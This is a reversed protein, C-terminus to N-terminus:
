PQVAERCERTRRLLTPVTEGLTTRLLQEREDCKRRWAEDTRAGTLLLGQAHFYSRRRRRLSRETAKVCDGLAGRLMEVREAEAREAESLKGLVERVHEVRGSEMATDLTRRLPAEEPFVPTIEVELHRLATDAAGADRRSTELDAAPDSALQALSRSAAARELHSRAATALRTATALVEAVPPPALLSTLEEFQVRSCPVRSSWHLHRSAFLSDTRLERGCRLELYTEAPAPKVDHAFTVRARAPERRAQKARREAPRPEPDAQKRKAGHMAQKREAGPEAGAGPEAEGGAGPEAETSGGRAPERRAAPDRPIVREAEYREHVEKNPVVDGGVEYGRESAHVLVRHGRSVNEVILRRHYPQLEPIFELDSRCFYYIGESVWRCQLDTPKGCSDVAPVAKPEGDWETAPRMHVTDPPPEQNWSKQFPGAEAGPEAEAETSAGRAAEAKDAGATTDIEMAAGREKEEDQQRKFVQPFVQKCRASVNVAPQRRGNPDGDDWDVTYETDDTNEGHVAAITANYPGGEGMFAQVRDGVQWLAM